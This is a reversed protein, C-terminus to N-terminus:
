YLVINECNEFYKMCNYYYNNTQIMLSYRTKTIPLDM